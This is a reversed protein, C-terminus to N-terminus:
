PVSPRSNSDRWPSFTKPVKYMAISNNTVMNMGITVTHLQTFSMDFIYLDLIGCFLLKEFFTRECLQIIFRHVKRLKLYTAGGSKSIYIVNSWPQWIKRPLCVLVPSFYMGLYWLICWIDMFYVLHGYFIGTDEM